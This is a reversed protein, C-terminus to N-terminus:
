RDVEAIAPLAASLLRTLDDAARAAAIQVDDHSLKPGGKVAAANTICSLGVLRAGLHRAAIAELVTSMGVADAGMARLMRVEAPTEYSPGVLGVYVGTRLPIGREAACDLLTARLRPDWADTMDPFRPGRQAENPGRLPSQGTLNIHDEIAMLDGAKFTPDLGGAANTLMVTRSGWAIEARLPRVVEDPAYGEYYHVRGLQLLVEVGMLVGRRMEGAHGEVTSRPWGPIEHFAISRADELAAAAVSLGSGLVVAIEPPPGLREKLVRAVADVERWETNKLM